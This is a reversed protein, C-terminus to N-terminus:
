DEVEDSMLRRSLQSRPLLGLTESERRVSNELPVPSESNMFPCSEYM